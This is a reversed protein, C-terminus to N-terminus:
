DETKVITVVPCAPNHEFDPIPCFLANKLPRSVHMKLRGNATFFM